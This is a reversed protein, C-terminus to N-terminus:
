RDTVMHKWWLVAWVCSQTCRHTHTHTHERPIRTLGNIKAMSSNEALIQLQEVDNALCVHGELLTDRVRGGWVSSMVYVPWSTVVCFWHYQLTIHDNRVKTLMHWQWSHIFYDTFWCLSMNCNVLVAWKSASHLPFSLRVQKQWTTTKKESCLAEYDWNTTLLKTESPIFLAWPLAIWLGSSSSFWILSSLCENQFEHDVRLDRRRVPLAHRCTATMDRIPRQPTFNHENHASPSCLFGQSRRSFSLSLVNM